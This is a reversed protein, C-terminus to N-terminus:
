NILSSVVLLFYLLYIEGTIEWGKLAGRGQERQKRYYAIHAGHSPSKLDTPHGLQEVKAGARLPLALSLGPPQGLPKPGQRQSGLPKLGGQCHLLPHFVGTKPGRREAVRGELCTSRSHYTRFPGKLRFPKRDRGPLELIRAM